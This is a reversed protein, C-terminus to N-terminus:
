LFLWSSLRAELSFPDCVYVGSKFPFLPFPVFFPLGVWNKNSFDTVPVGAPALVRLRYVNKDNLRTM